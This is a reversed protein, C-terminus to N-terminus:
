RQIHTEWQIQVPIHYHNNTTRGPDIYAKLIHINFTGADLHDKQPFAAVIDDAMKRASLSGKGQPYFLDVQLFGMLRDFGQIGVTESIKEAPQLTTRCYISGRQSKRSTSDLYGDENEKYLRPLNEVAQLQNILATEIAEYAM